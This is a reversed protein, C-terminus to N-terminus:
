DWTTKVGSYGRIRADSTVLTAGAAIATAVIIRDAPDRHAFGELEVARVAIRYDVPIFTLFPLAEVRAIWASPEMTFALRGRSVLMAIEWVSISSVSVPKGADVYGDVLRRAKAPLRKPEAVWWVLAHTDLVIV